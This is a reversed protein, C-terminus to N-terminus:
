HMDDSRRGRVLVVGAAGLRQEDRPDGYKQWREYLGLLDGEPCSDTAESIAEAAAEFTAALVHFVRPEDIQRYASTGISRVYRLDVPGRDVSHPVVGAIFLARDGVARLAQARRAGQQERAALYQLALPGSTRGAVSTRRVHDALMHVVYAGVEAPLSSGTKGQAVREYFFSELTGAFRLEPEPM